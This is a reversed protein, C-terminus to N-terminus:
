RHLSNLIFCVVVPVTEEKTIFLPKEPEDEKSDKMESDQETPKEEEGDEKPQEAAEEEKQEESDEGTPKAPSPAPKETKPAPVEIEFTREVKKLTVRHDSLCCLFYTSMRGEYNFNAFKKLTATEPLVLGSQAELHRRACAELGADDSGDIEKNFDGGYCRMEDNKKTITKKDDSVEYTFRNHGLFVLRSYPHLNQGTSKTTLLMVGVFHDPNRPIPFDDHTQKLKKILSVCLM